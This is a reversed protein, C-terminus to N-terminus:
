FIVQALSNTKLVDVLNVCNSGSKTLCDALQKDRSIWNVENIEKAAMMDRLCSIDVRLRFDSVTNSTQLHQVISKNDCYCKIPIINKINLMSELMLKIFYAAEAAELLAMTEAAITSKCTRNIKKSQWRVINCNQNSNVIFIAHGGQSVEKTKSSHSADSFVVLSCKSLDGLDVYNLKLNNNKLKRIYKRAAYVDTVKANNTNISLTSTDYSIDPRSRTAAWTLKGVTSKLATKEADSLPDENKRDTTDVEVDEITKVYHAQDVNISRGCQTIQMGLYKFNGSNESSLLFKKKISTIVMTRFDSDGMWIIDDVHLGIAGKLVGNVRWVYCAQDLPLKTMKLNILAQDFRLYWLRSADRLGYVCKRLKWLGKSNAERPPKLFVERRMDEGQLFASKIDFSHLVWGKSCTLTLLLRNAEPTLTPSDKKTDDMDQFGRAVLRAKLQRKGDIYKQTMVWQCTVYHQNLKQVEEFVKFDNWRQLENLKAETADPDDDAYSILVEEPITKWKSVDKWYISTADVDGDKLVNYWYENNCGKSNVKWGRSIIRYKLWDGDDGCKVAVYSKPLPLLTNSHETQETLDEDHHPTVPELTDNEPIPDEVPTVAVTPPRSAINTSPTCVNDENISDNSDDEENITEDSNEEGLVFESSGEEFHKVRCPHVMYMQGGHKVGIDKEQISVISGPGRWWKDRDRKYLVKDGIEYVGAPTHKRTQRRVARKLRESSEAKIFSLRADKMVDLCKQVEEGFTGRPPGFAPIDSTLVTPINPNRGFMLQCPSFGETNALSNKAFMAWKAADELKHGDAVLKEIMIGVTANHREVIGNSWPSEAASSTVEINFQECLTKFKDNNFEGGNDSLISKPPGFFSIWCDLFAKLVTEPKKNPIIVGASFRTFHDIYHALHKDGFAKLDMAININPSRARPFCVAPKPPPRKYQQCIVCTREVTEVCKFFEKDSVGGDKLLKILRESRAHAFQEHLKVAIKKRTQDDIGELNSSFFVPYSTEGSNDSIFTKSLPLCIHGNRTLIVKQDLGLMQVKSKSFDIHTGTKKMFERSLLLPIKVKDDVVEVEVYIWKKLYMPIIVRGLSPVVVDNGFRFTCSSPKFNFTKERM